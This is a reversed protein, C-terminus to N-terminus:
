HPIYSVRLSAAKGSGASSDGYSAWGTMTEPSLVFGIGGGPMWDPKDLVHQILPTLDPSQTFQNAKGAPMGSAKIAWLGGTAHEAAGHMHTADFAAVNAVDFVQVTLTDADAAEGGVRYVRLIATVIRSGAAIPLTFRLGARGMEADTGVELVPETDSFRLREQNGIWTCDDSPKSITQEFNLTAVQGGVGGTALAGGTAAGSTGATSPTGGSNGLSGGTGVTAGGSATGAGAAGAAGGNTFLGEPASACSLPFTAAIAALLTRSASSSM